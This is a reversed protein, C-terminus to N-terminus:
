NKNNSLRMPKRIMTVRPKTPEPTVNSEPPDLNLEIDPPELNYEPIETDNQPVETEETNDENVERLLKFIIVDTPTVEYDQVDDMSLVGELEEPTITDLDFAQYFENSYETNELIYFRINDLSDKISSVIGYDSNITEILKDKDGYPVIKIM